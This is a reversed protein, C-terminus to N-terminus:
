NNNLTKMDFTENFDLHYLRINKKKYNEHINQGLFFPFNIHVQKHRSFEKLKTGTTNEGRFKGTKDLYDLDPDDRTEELGGAIFVELAIDNIDYLLSLLMATRLYSGEIQRIAKRFENNINKKLEVLCLTIRGKVLVLFIGDCTRRLVDGEQKNFFSIFKNTGLMKESLRFFCGNKFTVEGKGMEEKECIKLKSDRIKEILYDEKRKGSSQSFIKLLNDELEENNKM